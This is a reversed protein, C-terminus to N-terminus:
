FASVCSLFSCQEWQTTDLNRVIVKDGELCFGRGEWSPQSSSLPATSSHLPQLPWLQCFNTENKHWSLSTISWLPMNVPKCSHSDSLCHTTSIIQSGDSLIPLLFIYITTTFRCTQVSKNLADLSVFFTPPPPPCVFASKLCGSFVSWDLTPTEASVKVSCTTEKFTTCKDSQINTIEHRHCWRDLRRPNLNQVKLNSECHSCINIKNVKLIM